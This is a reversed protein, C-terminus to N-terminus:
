IEKYFWVLDNVSSHLKFGYGILVLIRYHSDTLSPVVSGFLRDCGLEKAHNAVLDAYKSAVNKCRKEPLVYIDEIYCVTKGREDEQYGFTVFGDDDEIMEFNKLEKLYKAYKTM